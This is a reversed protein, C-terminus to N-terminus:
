ESARTLLTSLPPHCPHDSSTEGAQHVSLGDVFPLGDRGQRVSLRSKPHLLDQVKDMYVQLFSVTVEFDFDAAREAISHLPRSSHTESHPKM